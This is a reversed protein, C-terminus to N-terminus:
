DEIIPASPRSTHSLAQAPKTTSLQVNFALHGTEVAIPATNFVLNPPWSECDSKSSYYNKCDFIAKIFVQLNYGLGTKKNTQSALLDTLYKSSTQFKELKLKLDDREQEAKELKQRMIMLAFNAPEEEVQYSWDYSETGDCQSVLANSTSTEVLVTRRQPEAANPRKTDKLSRCERVFDGKRHCNYCEVKSMDFGISTPGNTGLNKGTDIQKLDENDFQPSTSQSAFFPYIVANSLSDVNLLPSAPLKVCATSVSAAASVESSSGTFNEFQQKLITKQVKKTETNGGFRKKIAEMLTKADKHCNFKLQHKDLFAMLLTGRAKLENKKALRQEATTPVVPQSVGEVIRTPVHSDGNLIVEWLSYDTM